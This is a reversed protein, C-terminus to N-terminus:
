DVVIYLVYMCQMYVYIIICQVCVFKIHAASDQFSVLGPSYVQHEWHLPVPSLAAERAYCARSVSSLYRRLYLHANILSLDRVIM